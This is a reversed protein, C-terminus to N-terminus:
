RHDLAGIWRRGMRLQRHCCGHAGPERGAFPATGSYGSPELLLSTGNGEDWKYVSNNPIDSSILAARRRDWVPGEVWAFGDAIKELTADRAVLRDFRPDLREVEGATPAAPRVRRM